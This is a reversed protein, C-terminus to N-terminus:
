RRSGAPGRVPHVAAVALCRRGRGAGDVSPEFRVPFVLPLKREAALRLLRARADHDPNDNNEFPDERVPQLPLGSAKVAEDLVTLLDRADDPDGATVLLTDGVYVTPSPADGGPLRVATAPDLVRADFRIMPDELVVPVPREANPRTSEPQNPEIPETM